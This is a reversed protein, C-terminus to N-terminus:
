NQVEEWIFYTTLNDQREIYGNSDFQNNNLNCDFHHTTYESRLNPYSYPSLMKETQIDLKNLVIETLIGLEEKIGRLAGDEASENLKLKESVSRDLRRVRERGDKFVQKSEILKFKKGDEDTYYIHVSAVSVKRFLNGYVDTDLVCEGSNIEKQLDNINKATGQGWTSTDIGSNNLQNELSNIM